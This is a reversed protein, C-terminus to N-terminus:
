KDGPCLVIFKNNETPLCKQTFAGILQNWLNVVLRLKQNYIISILKNSLLSEAIQLNFM